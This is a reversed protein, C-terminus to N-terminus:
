CSRDLSAAQRGFHRRCRVTTEASIKPLSHRFFFSVKGLRDFTAMALVAGV